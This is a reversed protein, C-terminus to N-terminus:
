LFKSFRIDCNIPKVCIRSGNPLVFYTFFHCKLRNSVQFMSFGLISGLPRTFILHKKKWATKFLNVFLNHLLKGRSKVKKLWTFTQSSTPLPFLGQSRPQDITIDKFCYKAPQGPKSTVLNYFHFYLIIYHHIDYYMNRFWFSQRFHSVFCIFYLLSLFHERLNCTKRNM